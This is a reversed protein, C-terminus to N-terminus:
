TCAKTPDEPPIQIEICLAAFHDKPDYPKGDVEIRVVSNVFKNFTRM